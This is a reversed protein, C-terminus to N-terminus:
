FWKSVEEKLGYKNKEINNKLTRLIEEIADKVNKNICLAKDSPECYTILDHGLLNNIRYYVNERKEEIKKHIDSKIFTKNEILLHIIKSNIRDKLIFFIRGVNEDLEYPLLVSYNGIKIKKIYNFKLLMGLHWVLQGSSGAEESLTKKRLISFHVGPNMIIYRYIRNRIGNSLVTERSFKSGEILIKKNLLYQIISLLGNKPIKLSKKAVNYLTEVNLVKNESLIREAIELVRKVTPHELDVGKVLIQPKMNSIILQILLDLHSIQYKCKYLDEKLENFLKLFDTITRKPVKLFELKVLKKFITNKINRDSFKYLNSKLLYLYLKYKFVFLGSDPTNSNTKLDNKLHNLM